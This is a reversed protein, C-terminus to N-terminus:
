KIKYLRYGGIEGVLQFRSFFQDNVNMVDHELPGVVAYDVKYKWLISVADPAGAYVRGIEAERQAFELGHTWVHGPYGMLSRRGTLFVPHNHVPAHIVIAQPPTERKVLEAFQIGPATFIGYENSRLVINAVDLAGALTVAVFLAVALARKLGNQRWLWALLLAVLPASALWWYFLVKINDWIWPAMKMVNPVIFCLSFPLLFVAVRRPAVYKGDHRWLMAAITLPIFLGSNKFWFWFVDPTREIITQLRPMTQFLQSSGLSFDFYREKASDWGFEFGFFSASNVASQHTSWWLQPLAIVLATIFFAYWLIRRDAPLLFWIAVPLGIILAAVLV